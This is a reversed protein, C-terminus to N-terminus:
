CEDSSLRTAVVSFSAADSFFSTLNSEAPKKTDVLKETTAVLNDEALHRAAGARSPVSRLARSMNGALSVKLCRLLVSM